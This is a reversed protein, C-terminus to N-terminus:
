DTILGCAGLTILVAAMISLYGVWIFAQNVREIRKTEQKYQNM